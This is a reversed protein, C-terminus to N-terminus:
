TNPPPLINTNNKDKIAETKTMEKLMKNTEIIKSEVHQNYELCLYRMYSSINKFGKAQSNLKIRDLQDKTVRVRIERGQTM